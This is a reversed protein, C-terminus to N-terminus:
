TKHLAFLFVRDDQFRGSSILTNMFFPLHFLSLQKNRRGTQRDIKQMVRGSKPNNKDDNAWNNYMQVYDEIKFQRIILRETELKKTGGHNLM